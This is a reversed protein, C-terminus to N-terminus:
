DKLWTAPDVSAPRGDAGSHRIEFHLHAPLEPDSVGVAGIVQGKTVTQQNRADSPSLSGYISYDGGGHDIIVTRHDDIVPAAVVRDVAREGGAVRAILLGHRLPLDDARDAHGIRLKGRVQVELNTM